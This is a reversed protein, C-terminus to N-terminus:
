GKVWKTAFDIFHGDPKQVTIRKELVWKQWDARCQAFNQGPFKQAFVQETRSTLVPPLSLETQSSLAAVPTALAKGQASRGGPLPKGHLAYFLVDTEADLHWADIVGASVLADLAVRLHKRFDTLRRTTSGSLRRLEAVAVPKHFKSVYLQLWLALPQKMLAKRQEFNVKAFGRTFAKCLERSIEVAFVADDGDQVDAARSLLSGSYSAKGDPDTIRVSTAIVDDILQQLSKRQSQGTHRGILRLFQRARFRAIYGSKEGRALQAAGMLVDAHVQTLRKGTFTFTYGNISAIQEGRLYPAAKGQVASFLACAIFDTPLARQEDQWFGLQYITAAERKAEIEQIERNREEFWEPTGVAPKAVLASSVSAHGAALKALKESVGRPQTDAADDAM